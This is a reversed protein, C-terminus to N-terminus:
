GGAEARAGPPVADGAGEAGSTAPAALIADGPGTLEAVFRAAIARARDLEHLGLSVAGVVPHGGGGERRCMAAVDHRRASAAWPNYGVGVKIVNQSRIVAVSYTCEPFLAYTVFKAAADLPRDGLDVLVVDGHVRGRDRVLAAYADRGAAIAAWREAVDPSRAIEDLPRDLMRPVMAELFAGDGHHETVAALRMAPEKVSMAEEASAFRAADIRDAWAVLEGREDLRLGFRAEAVDSVLKACSGYTPEWFWRRDPAQARATARDREADSGFATKHHDFYWTLRPSETFRFDLIANEDAKLWRAPIQAMGPGYGCSRYRYEAPRGGLERHLRTFLAASSLGDFCHGHTCVLVSRAGM